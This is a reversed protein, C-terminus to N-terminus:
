KGKSGAPGVPGVPPINSAGSTPHGPGAPGKPGVPGNAISIGGLSAAGKNKLSQYLGFTLGVALVTTLGGTADGVLALTGYLYSPASITTPYPMGRGGNKYWHSVVLYIAVLYM